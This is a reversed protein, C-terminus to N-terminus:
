ASQVTGSTFDNAILVSDFRTDYFAEKKTCVEKYFVIYDTRRTMQPPPSPKVATSVVVIVIAVLPSKKASLISTFTLWVSIATFLLPPFSIAAPFFINARYRVAWKEILTIETWMKWLSRVFISPFDERTGSDWLLLSTTKPDSHFSGRSFIYYLTLTM